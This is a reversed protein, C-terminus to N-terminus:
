EIVEDARVLLAPPVEIGLARATKLNVVLQPKGEEVPLDGPNAGKLIRDVYTAARRGMEFANTTYTMLGGLAAWDSEGYIAPLRAETALRVIEGMLPQTSFETSTPVILAQPAARRLAAFVGEIDDTGDVSFTQVGVGLRAGAVEIERVVFEHQPNSPTVLLAVRSLGPLLDTLLELRKGALEANLGAVGTLNGGPRAVSRAWGAEVPDRLATFVIPITSTAQAAARAAPWTSAVIVDVKARVLEAALTDLRRVDGQASRREINISQGDGHGIDRLGQLFGDSVPSPRGELYGIRPVDASYAAGQAAAGSLLLALAFLRRV